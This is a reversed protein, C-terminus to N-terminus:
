DDRRKTLGSVIAVFLLSAVWGFLTEFWIILRTFHEPTINFFEHTIKPEPSPIMPAWDNEQQLDVLPLIVDLSYALPSFGTYEERLLKCLYWNGPESIAYETQIKICSDYDNIIIVGASIKKRECPLCAEYSPNQFILPDTPAFVNNDPLAMKWYFFASSIWILLSWVILRMPRYGYGTLLWFCMHIFRCVYRYCRRWWRWWHGPSQGILDAKRLQHEFAIAVQRAGELHGMDRLVAQLQRWPQPYFGSSKKKIFSNKLGQKDLWRLRSEAINKAGGAIHNYRFGDIDLDEGWPAAQDVLRNVYASSLNIRDIKRKIEKFFWAQKVSMGNALFVSSNEQDVKGEVFILNGSITTDILRLSGALSFHAFV